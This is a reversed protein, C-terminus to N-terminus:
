AAPTALQVQVKNRLEQPNPVLPFSEKTGGTGGVIVTGYGFMRGFLPENVSISEIKNLLLELSRKRLTGTTMTLRRTTLTFQTNARMLFRGVFDVITVFVFLGFFFPVDKTIIAVLLWGIPRLFVAWHLGTQYTTREPEDLPVRRSATAAAQQAGARLDSGCHRCKIAEDQIEEACFPCKKM